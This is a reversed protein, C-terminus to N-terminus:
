LNFTGLRIAYQRTNKASTNEISPTIACTPSFSGGFFPAGTVLLGPMAPSFAALNGGFQSSCAM